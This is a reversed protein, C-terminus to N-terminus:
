HKVWAQWARHTPWGQFLKVATEPTAWRSPLPRRSDEIGKSVGRRVGISVNKPEYAVKLTVRSTLVDGIGNEVRCTLNQGHMARKV